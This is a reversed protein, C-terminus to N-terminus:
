PKVAQELCGIAAEQEQDCFGELIAAIGDEDCRWHERPEQQLCRYFASFQQKCSAVSGMSMCNPICDSSHDCKLELSRQCIKACDRELDRLEASRSPPASVIPAASAKLPATAEATSEHGSARECALALLGLACALTSGLARKALEMAQLRVIKSAIAVAQLAGLEASHAADSLWGILLPV